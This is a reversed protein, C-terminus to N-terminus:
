KNSIDTHRRAYATPSVGYEKKFMKSFAFVDSYGCAVATKGPTMGDTLYQASKKLRYKNIYQQPSMGTHKKFIVYFYSRDLHMMAAIEAVSLKRPYHLEIFRQAKKVAEYANGRKEEDRENGIRALLEWILGYFEAEDFRGSQAAKEVKEFVNSYHTGDIIYNETIEPSLKFDATFGLWIYHWPEKEDAKYHVFESPHIIFIQGAKPHYKRGDVTYEGKGSVVYHLLWYDRITPCDHGPECVEYGCDTPNIYKFINYGYFRKSSVKKVDEM